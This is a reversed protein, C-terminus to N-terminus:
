QQGCDIRRAVVGVEILAIAGEDFLGLQAGDGGGVGGLRVSAHADSRAVVIAVTVEIQMKVIVVEVRRIDIGEGM